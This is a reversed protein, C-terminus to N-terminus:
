SKKNNNLCITDSRAKKRHLSSSTLVTNSYPTFKEEAMITRRYLILAIYNHYGKKSIM